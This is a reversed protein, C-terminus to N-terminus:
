FGKTCKVLEKIEDVPRTTFISLVEYEWDKTPSKIHKVLTGHTRIWQINEEPAKYSADDYNWQLAKIFDKETEPIKELMKVIVECCNRREM